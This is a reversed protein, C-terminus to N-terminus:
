QHLTDHLPIPRVGLLFGVSRISMLGFGIALSAFFYSLPIDLVPTHSMGHAVIAQQTCLYATYGCFVAVIVDGLKDFFAQAKPPLTSTVIDISVHGRRNHVAAMGIFIFWAFTLSTIDDGWGVPTRLVYRTWVTWCIVGVIIVLSLNAITVLIKDIFRFAAEAQERGNSSVCEERAKFV